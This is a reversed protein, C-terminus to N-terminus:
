ATFGSLFAARRAFCSEELGPAACLASASLSM